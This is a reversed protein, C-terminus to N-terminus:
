LGGFPNKIATRYARPDLVIRHVNVMQGIALATDQVNADNYLAISDAAFYTSSHRTPAVEASGLYIFHLLKVPLM